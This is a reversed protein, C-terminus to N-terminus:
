QQQPPHPPTKNSFLEPLTAPGGPGINTEVEVEEYHINLFLSIKKRKQWIENGDFNPFENLFCLCENGCVSFSKSHKEFQKTNDVGHFLM